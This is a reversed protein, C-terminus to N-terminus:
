QFYGKEGLVRNTEIHFTKGPLSSHRGRHQFLMAEYPVRFQHRCDRPSLECTKMKFFNGLLLDVPKDDYFLLLFEIVMWLKHTRYLIGSATFGFHVAIWRDNTQQQIFDMMLKFYGPKAVYDDELLM